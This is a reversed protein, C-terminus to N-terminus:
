SLSDIYADAEEIAREMDGLLEEIEQEVDAFTDGLSAIAQANLNHKLFRVQDRFVVLVPEMKAEARRMNDILSQYRSRTDRLQEESRRRLDADAYEDNEADWEEFLDRAVQDIDRIRNSIRKAIGECRALETSFDDYAVELDGGEFGTLAQMAELMSRFREKAQAQDDRGDQIRDALIDRKEVGFREMMGYYTTACAPLSSALALVLLAAPARM